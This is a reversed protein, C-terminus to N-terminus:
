TIPCIDDISLNLKNNIVKFLEFHSNKTEKVTPLITNGSVLNEYVIETLNSTFVSELKKREINSQNFIKHSAMSESIVHTYNGHSIIIETNYPKDADTSIILESGNDNMFFLNGLFESYKSGRKNSNKNLSLNSSICYPEVGGLYKFLDIYHLANSGLRIDAATVIMKFKQYNIKQKILKYTPFHRNVFNCVAVARHSDLKKIIKEFQNKSQFVVKELLFKKINKSILKNLINFRVDSNTSVVAFEIDDPLSDLDKHYIFRERECNIKKLNNLFNEESSDCVLIKHGYNLNMLSQAHRCGMNGFGVVLFKM